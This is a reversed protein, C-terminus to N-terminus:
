EYKKYNGIQGDPLYNNYIELNNIRILGNQLRSADRKRSSIECRSADRKRAEYLRLRSTYRKPFRTVFVLLRSADRKPSNRRLPACIPHM